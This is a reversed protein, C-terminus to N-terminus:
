LSLCGIYNIIQSQFIDMIESKWFKRCDTGVPVSTRPTFIKHGPVQTQTGHLHTYDRGHILWNHMISCHCVLGCAAGPGQCEQRAALSLSHPCTARVQSLSARLRGLPNLFLRKGMKCSRLFESWWQGSMHIASVLVKDGSLFDCIGPSQKDTPFHRAKEGM